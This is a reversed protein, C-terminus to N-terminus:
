KEKVREFVYFYVGPQPKCETIPTTGDSAFCWRLTDGDLEVVAPFSGGGSNQFTRLNPRKEDRIQLSGLLPDLKVDEVTRKATSIRDGEIRWYSPKLIAYRITGNNGSFEVWEWVGDMTPKAKLAKPVPAAVAPLVFVLLAALPLVPFRM